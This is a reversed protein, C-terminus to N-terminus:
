TSGAETLRAHSADVDSSRWAVGWLVVSPETASQPNPTAVVEVILDDRRFFLQRSDAVTASPAIQQDLRFDLDFTGAFLAVAADRDDCTFVLHDLGTLDGGTEAPAQRGTVGLRPRDAILGLPSTSVPHNRRRLLRGFAAVDDVTFYVDHATRMESSERATPGLHLATNGVTM